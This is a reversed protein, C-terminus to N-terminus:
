WLAWHGKEVTTRHTYERGGNGLYLHEIGISTWMKLIDAGIAEFIDTSAQEEKSFKSSDLSSNTTSKPIKYFQKSCKGHYRADLARLDSVGAGIIRKWVVRGQQDNRENCVNLLKNKFDQGDALKDTQIVSVSQRYKSPLKSDDVELSCPSVVLCFLCHEKFDFVVGGESSRLHNTEAQSISAQEVELRLPCM